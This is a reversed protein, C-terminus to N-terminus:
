NVVPGLNEDERLRDIWKAVHARDLTEMPENVMRAFRAIMQVADALTKRPIPRSAEFAALHHDFPTRSLPKGPKSNLTERLQPNNTLATKLAVGLNRLVLNIADQMAKEGLEARLEEIVETRLKARIEAKIEDRGVRQGRGLAQRLAEHQEPPLVMLNDLTRDVGQKLTETLLTELRSPQHQRVADIQDKWAAVTRAAISQAKRQDSTGTSVAMQTRGAFFSASRVDAPLGMVVYWM